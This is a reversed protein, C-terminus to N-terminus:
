RMVALKAVVREYMTRWARGEDDHPSNHWLLTFTGEVQRSRQALELIRAEAHAPGLGRYRHLTADMVVLPWEWLDLERGQEINFPRFPHCTGCRFGERDAYGLTADYTLGVQEFHRWTNPIHFRLYHQRGGYHSHGLIQDLRNKEQQLKELDNLTSYGPHLGIEFGDRRLDNICRRVAPKAPDYGNDCPGPESAQFYFADDCLGNKRSVNALWYINQFHSTRTPAVTALVTQGMSYLAKKPNHHRLFHRASFRAARRWDAPSGSIADVDHSLKVSFPRRQPQWNPLLHRLWARLILAYEDVIPRDIFGQRYAVSAVGPFRGHVDQESVVTEEWRSLMFFASAIIDAYFIVAGGPIREAFPKRGDEYGAGWFLVPTETEFPLPRARPMVRDAPLWTISRPPLTLLKDWAELAAPIITVSAKEAPIERRKYYVPLDVIDDQWGARQALQSLTYNLIQPSPFTRKFDNV